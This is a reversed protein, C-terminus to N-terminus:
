GRVDSDEKKKLRVRQDRKAFFSRHIMKRLPARVLDNYERRYGHLDTSVFPMLYPIKFSTLGSLHSLLLYWGATLGFIGLTGGLIIFGYKLLRISASFDDKPIAFSSLASLAVAVVTMPSVLNASVAADGIILGGVIGITGSLPGPMRVGAERIMEFAFEMLFVELISPFPVGKRAEAFSLLLNTPLIQTHFSIVALYIGSIMLSTFVALYRVIRELSIIQFRSYKDEPSQLFNHLTSPFIVGTPSNDCLIVARGNLIEMAARDPRETTELQPFPSIWNQEELQELMGGDLIGDIEYRELRDKAEQIVDPYVLDEMYLLAAMTDTRSGIRIEEVKMGTNRIRKRVLATNVKVSESFGEKSGKIVKETEAKLVGASPFGKSAIKVAKPYGDLFLIANGALMAAFADEMNELISVDSIGLGNEDVFKIMERSPMEWMHNILKGLVSDQLMMNSVATEIYVVLCIIKPNQGLAMPRILIDACGRCRNRIYSENEEIKESIEM